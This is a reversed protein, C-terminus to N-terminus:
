QVLILVRMLMYRLKPTRECLWKIMEYRSTLAEQWPADEHMVNWMGTAGHDGSCILTDKLSVM